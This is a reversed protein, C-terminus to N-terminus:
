KQQMCDKCNGGSVKIFQMRTFESENKVKNCTMCEREKYEPNEVYKHLALNKLNEECELCRHGARRGWQRDSYKDKTLTNKCVDCYKM